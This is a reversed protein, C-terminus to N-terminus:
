EHARLRPNFWEELGYALCLAGYQFLIIAGMPALLYPLGGPMIYIAGSQFVAMNLMVGWNTPSYPILGLFMLGVSATLGGRVIRVFNLVIYSMVNPMLEHFLIHWTGLRLVQAAEIFERERLVLIQARIARALGAWMWMALIAAISIPDKVRFVAAFIMMIPFQPITLLVDILRMLVVDVWGGVFGAFIGVVVAIGVAFIGTLLATGICDRSGHVLQQLIDRGIWDTGLPHKLSPLQFRESYNSSLDLPVVLPGIAAMFLFFSTIVFGVLARRNRMVFNVFHLFSALSEHARSWVAGTGM